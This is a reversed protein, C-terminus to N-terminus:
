AGAKRLAKPWKGRWPLLAKESANAGLFYLLTVYVVVFILCRTLWISWGEGPLLNLLAGAGYALAIAPVLKGMERLFASLGYNFMRIYHFNVIIWNMLVIACALGLTMGIVGYVQILLVGLLAGLAMVVLQLVTRWGDRKMARLIMVNPYQLSPFLLAAMLILGIQWALTYEAGVWLHIFERGFLGFGLLIGGLLMLQIRGIRIGFATLAKGDAGQVVMRTIRPQLKSNIVGSIYQFYSLLTTGVAYVAVVASGSMAGLVLLGIRWFLLDALNGIFVFSSYRTIEKFLSRDFAFRSGSGQEKAPVATLPGATPLAATPPVVTPPTATPPTATPPGATLPVATPPGAALPAATPPGATLPAVIRLGLRRKAYLFYALGMAINLVTDIVVVALAKYGLLLLVSLVAIRVLLRVFTVTNLLGYKEYGQIYAQFAGSFFSFTLNVLFVLFIAKATALEAATLKGGYIMDLLLYFGTGALLGIAAIIGYLALCMQLLGSEKDKRGETRYQATYRVIANGFGFDLVALSAIFAGMLSYVGYESQGLTRILFPTFLVGALLDAAFIGYAGLIGTKIERTSM